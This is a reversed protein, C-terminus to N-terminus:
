SQPQNSNQGNSSERKPQINIAKRNQHYQRERKQQEDQEALELRLVRVNLPAIFSLSVQNGSVNEVTVYIDDGIKVSQHLRRTLVLKGDEFKKSKPNREM